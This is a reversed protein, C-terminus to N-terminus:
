DLHPSPFVSCLRSNYSLQVHKATHRQVCPQWNSTNHACVMGAQACSSYQVVEGHGTFVFLQWSFNGTSCNVALQTRNSSLNFCDLGM